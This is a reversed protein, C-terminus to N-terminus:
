NLIKFVLEVLLEGHDTSSVGVGKSKLDCELLFSFVKEIRAPPFNKAALHYEKVFFPNVGLASSLGRESRDPTYHYIMLKTFYQHLLTVTMVMPNSKQNAGFYRAIRYAKVHNLTGLAKQLEFVNFDKSIGIRDEIIEPTIEQGKDIDLFLKQIENTVKALDTGLHDALIQAAKLNITYGKGRVYKDIWAPLKDDYIRKSEFLVGKDSILKALKKRGDITKYKHCFVLITSSLPKEVYKLLAEYEANFSDEDGRPSINKLSQAERVVILNYRSMMPFRRAASIIELMSADKGYFVNFNFEKEDETLVKSEIYNSVVDIFFPEEGMLFYIPSYKGERVDQIIKEFTVAM